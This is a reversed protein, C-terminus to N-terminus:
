ASGMAIIRVIGPHGISDLIAAERRFRALAEADKARDRHLTKLAVEQNTLLDTAAVVKGMAGSGLNSGVRFRDGFFAGSSLAEMLLTAEDEDYAEVASNTDPDEPRPM